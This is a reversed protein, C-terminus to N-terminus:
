CRTVDFTTQSAYLIIGGCTAATAVLALLVTYAPVMASITILLLGAALTPACMVINVLLMVAVIIFVKRVFTARITEDDFLLGSTTDKTASEEDGIDGQKEIEQKISRGGRREDYFMIIM